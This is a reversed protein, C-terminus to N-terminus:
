EYDSTGLFTYQIFKIKYEEIPRFECSSTILDMCRNLYLQYAENDESTEAVDEWDLMWNFGSDPKPKKRLLISMGM